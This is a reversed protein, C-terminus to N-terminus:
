IDAFDDIGFKNLGNSYFEVNQKSWIGLNEIISIEITKAIHIWLPSRRSIHLFVLPQKVFQEM